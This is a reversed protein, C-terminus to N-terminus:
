LGPEFPRANMRQCTHGIQNLIRRILDLYENILYCTKGSSLKLTM